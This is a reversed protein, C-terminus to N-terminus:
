VPYTSWRSPGSVLHFSSTPKAGEVYSNSIREVLAGGPESPPFTASFCRRKLENWGFTSITWARSGVGHSAPASPAIRKPTLERASQVAYLVSAIAAIALTNTHVDTRAVRQSRARATTVAADTSADAVVFAARESSGTPEPPGERNSRSTGSSTPPATLSWARWDAHELGNTSARIRGVGHGADLISVPAAERSSWAGGSRAGSVSSRGGRSAQRRTEGRATRPVAAGRRDTAGLHSTRPIM